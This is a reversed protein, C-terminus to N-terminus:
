PVLPGSESGGLTSDPNVWQTFTEGTGVYPDPKALRISLSMRWLQLPSAEIKMTCTALQPRALPPGNPM